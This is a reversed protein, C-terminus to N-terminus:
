EVRMPRGALGCYGFLTDGHGASEAGVWRWGMCVGPLCPIILHQRAQQVADARAMCCWRGKAEEVTVLM